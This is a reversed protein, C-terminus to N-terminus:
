WNRNTAWGGLLEASPRVALILDSLFNERGRDNEFIVRQNGAWAGGSKKM